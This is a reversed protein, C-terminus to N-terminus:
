RIAFTRIQFPELSIQIGKDHDYLIPSAKPQHIANQEEVSIMRSSPVPLRISGSASQGSVNHVRLMWAKNECCYHFSSIGIQQSDANPGRVDGTIGSPRIATIFPM